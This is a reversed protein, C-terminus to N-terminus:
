HKKAIEASLFVSDCLACMGTTTLIRGVHLQGRSGGMANVVRKTLMRQTPWTTNCTEKCTFKSEYRAQKHKSTTLTALFKARLEDLDVKVFDEYDEFMIHRLSGGINWM